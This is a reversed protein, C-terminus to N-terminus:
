CMWFWVEHGGSEVCLVCVCVHVSVFDPGVESVNIEWQKRGQKNHQAENVQYKSPCELSEQKLDEKNATERDPSM